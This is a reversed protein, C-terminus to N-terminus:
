QRGAHQIPYGNQEWWAVGEELVVTNPFGADRLADTLQDSLKHPCACYSVIWTGDRPLIDIAAQADYYPASVAGPIRKYKWDSTPRTDLIVM